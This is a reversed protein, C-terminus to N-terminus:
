TVKAFWNYPQQFRWLLFIAAAFLLIILWLQEANGGHLSAYVTLLLLPIVEGMVATLLITQGIPRSLIDKEKLTAIVVGLAVTMFIITALSVESFLGFLKLLFALILSMVAVGIFAAFATKLPDVMKGSQSRRKQNNKRSLLDFDIEMGSLFILLIVGLNSLFSLNATNSILNFGSSGMIIGVIIEAVATPVNNVKFRAMFIPIVLALLVVLFLSLQPM